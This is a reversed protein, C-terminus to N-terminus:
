QSVTWSESESINEGTRSSRIVARFQDGLRIETQERVTFGAEQASFPIRLHFAPVPSAKHPFKTFSPCIQVSKFAFCGLNVRKVGERIEPKAPVSGAEGNDTPLTVALASSILFSWFM